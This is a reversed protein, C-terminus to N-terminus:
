IYAPRAFVTTSRCHGDHSNAAFAYAAGMTNSHDSEINNSQSVFEAFEAIELAWSTMMKIIQGQRHSLCCNSCYNETIARM